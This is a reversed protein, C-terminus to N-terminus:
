EGEENSDSHLETLQEVAGQLQAIQKQQTAIKRNQESIVKLLDASTLGDEAPAARMSEQMSAFRSGARKQGGQHKAPRTTPFCPRHPIQALAAYAPVGVLSNILKVDVEDSSEWARGVIRPVREPTLAASSIAVGMGDNAGSAIIFDGSRVPGRVKIEVQGLFAVKEYQSETNEPPM